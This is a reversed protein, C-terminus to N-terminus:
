KSPLGAIFKQTEEWSTQLGSERVEDLNPAAADRASLNPATGDVLPWDIALAPDTACIPHERQPDYEASCLYMVTSNDQLALFGHALGESIYITRRDSDNLVARLQQLLQLNDRAGM